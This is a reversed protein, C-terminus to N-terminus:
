NGPCDPAALSHHIILAACFRDIRIPFNQTATTARATPAEQPHPPESTYIGTPRARSM